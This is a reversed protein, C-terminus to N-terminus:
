AEAARESWAEWRSQAELDAYGAGKPLLSLLPRSSRQRAEFSSRERDINLIPAPM